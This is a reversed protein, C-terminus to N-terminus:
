GTVTELCDNIIASVEGAKSLVMFHSGGAVAMPKRIRWFPFTRDRTGHIHFLNEPVVNNRWSLVQKVSWKLIREDSSLLLARVMSREEEDQTGFFFYSLAPFQLLISYPFMEALRTRGMLKYVLPLEESHKVSSIIITCDPNLRKALEVAVIGGFSVGVLAFNKRETIQEELRGLYSEFSENGEPVIWRVYVKNACHVRLNRFVREDAALGSIFYVTDIM